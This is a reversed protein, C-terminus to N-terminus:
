TANEEADEMVDFDLQGLGLINEKFNPVNGEQAMGLPEPMSQRFPCFCLTIIVVGIGEKEFVDLARIKLAQEPYQVGLLEATVNVLM